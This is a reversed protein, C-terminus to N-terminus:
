AADNRDKHKPLFDKVLAIVKPDLVGFVLFIIATRVITEWELKGTIYLYALVTGWLYGAIYRGHVYLIKAIAMLKKM